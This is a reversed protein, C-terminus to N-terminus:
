QSEGPYVVADMMQHWERLFKKKFARRQEVYGKPVGFREMVLDINALVDALEEALPIENMMGTRPHIGDIGQIICRAAIASCEGM